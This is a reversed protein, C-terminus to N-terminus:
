KHGEKYHNRLEVGDETLDGEVQNLRYELLTLSNIIKNTAKVNDAQQEVIHEQTVSIRSIADTHEKLTTQMTFAFGAVLIALKVLDSFNGEIWDKSAVMGLMFLGSSKLSLAAAIKEPV